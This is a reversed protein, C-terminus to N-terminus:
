GVAPLLGRADLERILLRRRKDIAKIQQKSLLDDLESQLTPLDIEQLGLAV